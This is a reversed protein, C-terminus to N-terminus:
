KASEAQAAEEMADLETETDRDEQEAKDFFGEPYRKALKAQNGAAVVKPTENFLAYCVGWFLEIFKGLHEDVIKNREEYKAAQGAKDFELTPTGDEKLIPAGDVNIAQKTQPGYFQKKVMDLMDAALINMDVLAETITGHLKVKRSLTPVKHQLVKAAVFIYYLVDGLEEFAQKRMDDTLGHAGTVYPRLAKFTEGMETSIGVIAHYLNVQKQNQSLRRIGDKAPKQSLTLFVGRRYNANTMEM